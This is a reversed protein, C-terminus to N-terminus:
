AALTVEEPPRNHGRILSGLRTRNGRHLTPLKKVACPKCHDL